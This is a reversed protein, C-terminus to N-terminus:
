PEVQVILFYDVVLDFGNSDPVLGEGLFRVRKIFRHGKASHCFLQGTTHFEAGRKALCFRVGPWSDSDFLGADATIQCLRSNTMPDNNGDLTLVQGQTWGFRAALGEAHLASGTLLIAILLAKM